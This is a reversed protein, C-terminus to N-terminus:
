AQSLPSLGGTSYARRRRRPRDDPLAPALWRRVFAFVPLAILTNLVVTAAIDRALLWSVPADVGLLFQMMSVGVAAGATAAAGAAMPALAGQPDRLERIRGTGYGVLVFVLSSLGLTEVLAFDVFLGVAFGFCAGPVSGALMATAAVVLPLLDANVGFLQVQSVATVQFAVVALGLTALRGILQPTIAVIV